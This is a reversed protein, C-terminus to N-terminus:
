SKLMTWQDKIANSKDDLEGFVSGQHVGLEALQERIRSKAEKHIPVYGLFPKGVAAISHLATLDKFIPFGAGKPQKHMFYSKGGFLTFTGSQAILRETLRRPYVAIPMSLKERSVSSECQLQKSFEKLESESPADTDDCGTIAKRRLLSKTDNVLAMEARIAVDFRTPSAVAASGRFSTLSNLRAANLIWLAGDQKDQSWHINGHGRFWLGFPFKYPMALPHYQENNSWMCGEGKKLRELLDIVDSVKRIYMKNIQFPKLDSDTLAYKVVAKSNTHSFRYQMSECRGQFNSYHFARLAVNLPFFRGQFSFYNVNILMVFVGNNLRAWRLM